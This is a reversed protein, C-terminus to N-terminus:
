IGLFDDPGSYEENIVSKWPLTQKRKKKKKLGLFNGHDLIELSTKTRPQKQKILYCLTVLYGLSVWFKTSLWPQGQIWSEWAEAEGTFCGSTM